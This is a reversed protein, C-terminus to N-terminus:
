QTTSVPETTIEVNEGDRKSHSRAMNEFNYYLADKSTDMQWPFIGGGSLFLIQSPNPTHFALHSMGIWGVEEEARTVAFKEKTPFDSNSFQFPFRTYPKSSDVYDNAEYIKTLLTSVIQGDSSTLQKTTLLFASTWLKQTLQFTKHISYGSM